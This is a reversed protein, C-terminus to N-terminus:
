RVVVWQTTPIFGPPEPAAALLVVRQGNPDIVQVYHLGDCSSNPGTPGACALWTVLASALSVIKIQSILANGTVSRLSLNISGASVDILIPIELRKKAGGALKFVDVTILPAKDVKVTFVRQGAGTKNPEVFTLVLMAAGNPVSISPWDMPGANAGYILTPVESTNDTYRVVCPNVVAPNCGIPQALGQEIGPFLAQAGLLAQLALVLVYKM